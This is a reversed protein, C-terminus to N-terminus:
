PSTAVEGSCPRGACISRGRRLQRPPRERLLGPDTRVSREPGLRGPEKRAGGVPSRRADDRGRGQGGSREPPRADQTRGADVVGGRRCPPDRLIRMERAVIRRDAKAGTPSMRSEVQVMWSMERTSGSPERGEVFAASFEVPSVWTGLFDCDFSLIVDARDFHLRPMARRGFCQEHADLLASVSQPDYEVHQGSAFGSLFGDVRARTTPSTLTETLVVVKSGVSSLASLRRAIEADAADVDRRRERSARPTSGTKSDYLELLSTQGTACLGGGSVPHSRDLPGGPGRFGELKIPRGDRNKVMM